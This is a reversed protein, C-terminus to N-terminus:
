NNISTLHVATLSPGQAKYPHRTKRGIRAPVTLGPDLRIQHYSAV